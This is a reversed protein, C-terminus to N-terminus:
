VARVAPAPDPGSAQPGVLKVQPVVRPPLDTTHGNGVATVWGAGDVTAVSTDLSEWNSIKGTLVSGSEDRPTATLHVAAGIEDLLLDSPRISISAVDTAPPGPDTPSGSDGSCSWILVAVLVVAVVRLARM